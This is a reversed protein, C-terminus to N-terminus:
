AGKASAVVTKAVIEERTGAVIAESIIAIHQTAAAARMGNRM